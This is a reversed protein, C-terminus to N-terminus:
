RRYSRAGTAGKAQISTDGFRAILGDLFRVVIAQEDPTLGDVLRENLQELHPFSVSCIARGRETARLEVARGDFRSPQREILGAQVMRDVLGTLAAPSLDLLRGVQAMPVSDDDRLTYLLGLQIPTVGLTAVSEREAAEYVRRQARALLYFLRPNTRM